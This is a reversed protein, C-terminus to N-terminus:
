KEFETIEIDECNECPRLFPIGFDKFASKNM